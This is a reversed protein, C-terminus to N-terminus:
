HAGLAVHKHGERAALEFTHKSSSISSGAETQVARLLIIMRETTVDEANIDRGM